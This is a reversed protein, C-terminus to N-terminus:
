SIKGQSRTKMREKQFFYNSCKMGLRLYSLLFKVKIDELRHSLKYYEELIEKKYAKEM